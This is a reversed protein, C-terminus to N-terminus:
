IGAAGADIALYAYCGRAEEPPGRRLPLQEVRFVRVQGGVTMTVVSGVRVEAHVSAISRGDIRAGVEDLL